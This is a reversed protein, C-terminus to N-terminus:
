VHHPGQGARWGRAPWAYVHRVVEYQMLAQWQTVNTMTDSFPTSCLLPVPSEFALPPGPKLAPGGIICSINNGLM